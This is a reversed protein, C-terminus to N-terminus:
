KEEIAKVKNKKMKVVLWNKEKFHVLAYPGHLKEGELYIEILGKKLCTSLPKEKGSKDKKLNWYKGKDWIVVKGAGYEGKPITGEFNAYAMPHDETAVALRKDKTTKPMGKPVAWSKLVGGISLRLDYHLRTAHHKQIVFIRKTVAGKKIGPEPTKKFDRRSKYKKLTM